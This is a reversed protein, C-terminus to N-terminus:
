AAPLPNPANPLIGQARLQREHMECTQMGHERSTQMVTTLQHTKGERILNRVASTAVLIEAVAVRGASVRKVLRQSIVARLSDALMSRVQGQQAAPFVDVIRDVSQAASGTHLTAFVIHGTEAATLALQISEYDRLEGILICDPDERLAARLARSFSHAHSGVERQTVLSRHPQHIFEIPDEITVIHRRDERNIRDIMAALTSSKGSGTAGTVLVLGHPARAIERLVPPLQLSEITPITNPIIRVSCGVGRVHRFINLRVRVGSQSQLSLDCDNFEQLTDGQGRTLLPMLMARLEEDSVVPLDLRQMDGDIRVIPVEGASLHLDSAKMCLATAILQDFEM